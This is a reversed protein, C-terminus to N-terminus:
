PIEGDARSCRALDVSVPCHDSLGSEVWDRMSGVEVAELRELLPRSLFVFDVHYESVLGGRGKWRLTMATEEGHALGHHTHHASQVGLEALRTDYLATAVCLHKKDPGVTIHDVVGITVGRFKVPSGPELGTLAEDFYAFAPHTAKRLESMGIWTLGTITAACGGVVFLGLKWANTRAM